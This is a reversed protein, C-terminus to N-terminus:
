RTTCVLLGASEEQPSNSPEKHWGMMTVYYSTSLVLFDPRRLEQWTALSVFERSVQGLNRDARQLEKAEIRQSKVTRPGGLKEARMRGWVRM